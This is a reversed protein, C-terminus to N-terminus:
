LWPIRDLVADAQEQVWDSVDEAQEQVWDGVDEAHEQVRDAATDAQDQIWQPGEDTVKDIGWEITNPGPDSRYWGQQDLASPHDEDIAQRPDPRGLLPDAPTPIPLPIEPTPLQPAYSFPREETQRLREAELEQLVAPVEGGGGPPHVPLFTHNGYAVRDVDVDSPDSLEGAVGLTFDDVFHEPPPGMDAVDVGNAIQREIWTETAAVGIGNSPLDETAFASTGVEENGSVEGIIRNAGFVDTVEEYGVSADVIIGRALRQAAEHETEGPRQDPAITYEFSVGEGADIRITQEEGKELAERAAQYTDYYDAAYANVHSRDLLGTNEGYVIESGETYRKELARRSSAPQSPKAGVGDDSASQEGHAGSIPPVQGELRARFQTLAPRKSHVLRADLATTVTPRQTSGEDTASPGRKKQVQTSRDDRTSTAQSSPSGAAASRLRNQRDINSRIM